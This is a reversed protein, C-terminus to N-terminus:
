VGRTRVAKPDWERYDQRLPFVGEPWDEPLLLRRPDPHGIFQVGILEAIEREIWNAAPISLGLSPMEPKKRDLHVRLSILLNLDEITFHHIVEISRPTELSSAINYRAGLQRFLYGGLRVVADPRIDLYVRKASHEQIQLIDDSFRAELEKLLSDRTLQQTM